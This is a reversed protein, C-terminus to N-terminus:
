QYVEPPIDQRPLGKIDIASELARVDVIDSAQAHSATALLPQRVVLIAILAVGAVVGVGYIVKVFRPAPKAVVRSTSARHMLFGGAGLLLLFLISGIVFGRETLGSEIFHNLINM